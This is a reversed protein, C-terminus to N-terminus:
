ICSLYSLVVIKWATGYLRFRGQLDRDASVTILSSGEPINQRSQYRYVFLTGGMVVVCIAVIMAIKQNILGARALIFAMFMLAVVMGAWPGRSFTTVLAALHILLVIGWGIRKYRDKDTFIIALNLPIALGLLAGMPVPNGITSTTREIPLQPWPIPDAGVYQVLAYLSVPILVLAFSGIIRKARAVDTPITVFLMFLVLYAIYTFVGNYRDYNGCLATHGHVALVTTVVGWAALSATCYLIPRPIQTVDNRYLRITFIGLLFLTGIGLGILKPLSFQALVNVSFVLTVAVFLFAIVANETITLWCVNKKRAETNCVNARRRRAAKGM